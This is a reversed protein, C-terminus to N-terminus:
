TLPNTARWYGRRLLPPQKALSMPLCMMWNSIPFQQCNQARNKEGNTFNTLKRHYRMLDRLQRIDSPSIFSGSVLDHKFIDAIWKADKKDTKKGRITNPTHWSSPALLRWFITFLYGISGLPSWVCMKVTIKLCGYLVGGCTTPLPPFGSLKAPPLVATM